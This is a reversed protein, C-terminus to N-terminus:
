TANNECKVFSPILKMKVLAFHIALGLVTEPLMKFNYFFMGLNLIGPQM